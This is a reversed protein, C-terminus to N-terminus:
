APLGPPRSRSLFGQTFSNSRTFYLLLYHEYRRCTGALSFLSDPTFGQATGGSYGPILRCLVVLGAWRSPFTCPLIFQFGPSRGTTVLQLSSPL